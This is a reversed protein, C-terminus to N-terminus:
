GAGLLRVSLIAVGLGWVLVLSPLWPELQGTFGPRAPQAGASTNTSIAMRRAPSSPGITLRLARHEMAPPSGESSPIGNDTQPRSLWGLTALADGGDGAALCLRLPLADTRLANRSSRLSWLRPWHSRPSKGSRISWAGGWGRSWPQALWSGLANM